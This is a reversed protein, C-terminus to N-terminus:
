KSINKSKNRWGDHTKDYGYYHKTEGGLSLDCYQGWDSYAKKNDHKKNAIMNRKGFGVKKKKGDVIIEIQPEPLTKDIAMKAFENCKLWTKKDYGTGPFYVKYNQLNFNKM